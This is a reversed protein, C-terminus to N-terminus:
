LQRSQVKKTSSICNMEASDKFIANSTCKYFTNIFHLLDSFMNVAVSTLNRGFAGVFFRGGSERWVCVGGSVVMAKNSNRAVLTAVSPVKKWM